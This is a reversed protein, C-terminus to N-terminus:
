EDGGGGSDGGAPNPEPRELALEFVDRLDEVMHFKMRKTIEEPVDEELDGANQRPIIVEKVGSRSAALVKEKIGGVPLIRGRLTIEGTMSVLPRAPRRSLLSAIAAAMATGASPGDKPTAGAPVHLHVHQNDFRDAEFGFEDARARVYTLAIQASEKMVEGLSGTLVLAGKGPVLSAEIHLIEGGASTWAMGTASGIRQEESARDPFLRQPGLFARIDGAKVIRRQDASATGEVLARAHKRCISGIERELNRVGAECTYVSIIEDLATKYFSLQRRKLGAAKMQRPVLFRKAIERKENHTYGPIRIIEMRDQLAPPIPDVLNATTIFLITSLDFPVELYHDSFSSNQQPDLVELLASAPDGRFDNGLKDIEDLMFVPNATKARKLGQVIRGPLAGVYTRRHGRIEAEDRVGGLSLRVFERGLARAISRGLSTKGVGPPGIFCLIPAKMDKKLQLVALFELIREKVKRLDFHDKDLVKKAEDIDLRDDSFINWPLSILWDIYTRSVNYDAAAPHMMKLRELEKDAAERVEEPLDVEALRKKLEQVDPSDVDEGLQERIARLQERLFHERQSDAFASSVKHQIEGGVRMMIEERGLLALIIELRDHLKQTALVQVKEEFSLNITDAVLDVLRNTDDINYAAIRLEEPFHAGMAVINQFQQLAAKAMARTEVSDDEEPAIPTVEGILYPETQKVERIAIRSLGRVLVRRTEDPLRLTKVVRGMCGVGHLAMGQRDGEDIQEVPVLALLRDDAVADDILQVMEPEDVALSTITFPFLVSDHLPFIPLLLKRKRRRKRRVARKKPTPKNEDPPPPSKKPTRAM